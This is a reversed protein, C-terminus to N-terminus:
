RKAEVWGLSHDYVRVLTVDSFKQLLTRALAEPTTLHPDGFVDNLNRHDLSTIFAGFLDLATPGFEFGASANTPAQVVAEVLFTHGHPRACPDGLPRYTLQHAAEFSWRKTLTLKM